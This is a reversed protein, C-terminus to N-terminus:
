RMDGRIPEVGNILCAVGDGGDLPERIADLSEGSAAGAADRNRRPSELGKYMKNLGM